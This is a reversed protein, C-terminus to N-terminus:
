VSLAEVEMNLERHVRFAMWATIMATLVDALPQAYLIGNVGWVMPLSLILPLFCIGQRCAGLFLGARGKGLALFLSAYVTHFGFLMFSLGNATLAKAGLYVIEEQGNAFLTM